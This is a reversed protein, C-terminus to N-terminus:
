SFPSLSRRVPWTEENPTGLIRFISWALGIEGRSANFLSDRVWKGQSCSAFVFPKDRDEGADTEDDEDEDLLRLTTFLGALLCGLSWMDVKTADYCHPSFLLEPPRYPGTCVEFYMETASEPYGVEEDSSPLFSVGFDILRLWGHPTILINSPKIDRHGIGEKHLHALASVLQSLFSRTLETFGKPGLSRRAGVPVPHPSFYPSNLFDDLSFPIYPMWIAVEEEGLGEDVDLVPIVNPHSIRRLIALEKRIDHPEVSFSSVKVVVDSERKKYITSSIGYALVDFDDKSM